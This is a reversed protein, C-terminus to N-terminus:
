APEPCTRPITDRSRPGSQRWATEFDAIPEAFRYMLQHHYSPLFREQERLFILIRAAPDYDRIAKAAAASYLYLGSAEGRYRANKGRSFLKEYDTRSTFNRMGPFDLAFFNPEKLEPFFIDPHERLYSHWATTGCKAAGAIFLNPKM